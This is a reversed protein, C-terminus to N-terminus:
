RDQNHNLHVGRLRETIESQQRGLQQQRQQGRKARDVAVWFDSELAKMEQKAVFHEISHEDCTALTTQIERLQKSFVAKYTGDLPSENVTRMAFAFHSHDNM